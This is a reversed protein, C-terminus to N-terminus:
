DPREELPRVPFASPALGFIRHFTATFASASEYGVDYAVTTVSQGAELKPIAAMLRLRQRWTALGAGTERRFARTFTRRGMAALSAWDDLDRDDTPDDILAHCVRLLRVDQPMPMDTPTAPMRRVESLLLRAIEGERADLNYDPEFGGVEIILARVLDSVEIVRAAQPSRDLAPDIYLTHSSVPGRCRVEHEIGAPLWIARRPPLMFVADSTAVAMVGATCYTLQSRTHSHAPDVMGAPYADAFGMVPRSALPYDISHKM